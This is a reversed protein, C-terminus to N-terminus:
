TAPRPAAPPSWIWRSSCWMPWRRTYGQMDIGGAGGSIMDIREVAAAPVRALMDALPDTKAAPRKGNILVNGAAGRGPNGGEFVFGPLRSVMEMATAAQFQVFYDPAYTQARAGAVVLSCALLIAPRIPSSSRM